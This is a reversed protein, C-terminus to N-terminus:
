IGQKRFNKFYQGFAMYGAHLVSACISPSALAFDIRQNSQNRQHTNFSQTGLHNEMLDVLNLTTALQHSNSNLQHVENFDGCVLLKEGQRQRDEM